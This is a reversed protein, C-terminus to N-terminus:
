CLPRIARLRGQAVMVEHSEGTPIRELVQKRQVLAQVVQGTLVSLAPHGGDIQVLGGLLVPNGDFQGPQGSVVELDLDLVALQQQAPLPLRALGFALLETDVVHPSNAAAAYFERALAECSILKIKM